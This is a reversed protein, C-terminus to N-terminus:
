PAAQRRGPLAQWQALRERMRKVHSGPWYLRGCRPCANFPGPLSATDGPLTALEEPAMPRLVSNDMVCRTFPAQLWDVPLVASLAAAEHAVGDAELLVSPCRGSARHHLARDKTVLVRADALAQEILTLDPAGPPALAADHGAARLWRALGTLMEDILLRMM